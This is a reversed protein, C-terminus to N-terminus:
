TFSLGAMGPPKDFLLGVYPVMKLHEGADAKKTETACALRLCAPPQRHVVGNRDHRVSPVGFATTMALWSPLIMSDTRWPYPAATKWHEPIVCHIIVAIRDPVQPDVNSPFASAAKDM